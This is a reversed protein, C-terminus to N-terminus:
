RKGGAGFVEGDRAFHHPIDPLMRAALRRLGALNGWQERGLHVFLVQRIDRGQLHSFIEQPQFHSLECVLLDLPHALLPDLDERVGLDASHGIRVGGSELLFCYSRYDVRYKAAFRARFGDLHRTPFATVRIDGVSVARAARLPKLQLRFKLLEPFLFAAQLMARMPKVARGPLYVPLDRRRGELWFGQVLMFFGGFHDANLHSIFIGDLSEYGLGSAKLQSDAPEGCDILVSSGGIRYLFSAHNRDACPWGDGVGLCNVSFKKM